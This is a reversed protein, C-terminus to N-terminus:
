RKRLAAEIRDLSESIIKMSTPFAIRIHGEAGPGFWRAAGPVVAVRAEDFIYKAMEMSTMEYASIDPFLVYTGQPTRCTVGPMRNLREVAYDRVRTLHRLFAALFPRGKEYAAQAAIQSLTSAGWATTRARSAEILGEFVEASPAALFGIRLGSLGFNKSMGYVMITRAAIQPSLSAISVFRHPEFVIDSWIEDNMIWLGHEVAIEGLARLDQESLVLGLPNHPNCVGLMKTRPTILKRIGALDLAGTKRDLRTRVPTGGAAEISASFLFDVPDFIIAEDGPSLAFRAMAFMASAASDAALVLNPECPIGRHQNLMDSVVKRFSPLGEPPGYSFEGTDIYDHLAQRIEHAVPFDSDAATLPLVDAPQEAWRLNFARQRLLDINVNDDRFWDDYNM